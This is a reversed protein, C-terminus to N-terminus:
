SVPLYRGPGGKFSALAPQMAGADHITTVHSPFGTIMLSDASASARCPSITDSDAPPIESPTLSHQSMSPSALVRLNHRRLHEHLSLPPSLPPFHVSNFANSGHRWYPNTQHCTQFPHHSIIPPTSSTALPPHPLTTQAQHVVHRQFHKPTTVNRSSNSVSELSAIAAATQSPCTSPPAGPRPSFSMRTSTRDVAIGVSSSTLSPSHPHAIHHDSITPTPILQPRQLSLGLLGLGHSWSSSRDYQQEDCRGSVLM